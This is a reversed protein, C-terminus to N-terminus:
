DAPDDGLLEGVAIEIADFPTSRTLDLLDARRAGRGV